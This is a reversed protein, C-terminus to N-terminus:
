ITSLKNKDGVSIVRKRLSFKIGNTIRTKYKDQAINCKDTSTFKLRVNGNMLQEVIEVGNCTDCTRSYYSYVRSLRM